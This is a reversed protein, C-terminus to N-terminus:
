LVFSFTKGQSPSFHADDNRTKGSRVVPDPPDISESVDVALLFNICLLFPPSDEAQAIQEKNRERSWLRSSWHLLTLRCNTRGLSGRSFTTCDSSDRRYAVWDSRLDVLADVPCPV